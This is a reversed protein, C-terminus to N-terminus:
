GGRSLFTADGGLSAQESNDASAVPSNPNSPNTNATIKADLAAIVAGTQVKIPDAKATSPFLVAVSVALVVGVVRMAGGFCRNWRSRPTMPHVQASREGPCAARRRIGADLDAGYRPRGRAGLGGPEGASSRGGGGDGN